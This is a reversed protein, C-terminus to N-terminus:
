VPHVTFTERAPSGFRCVEEPPVLLAAADPDRVLREIEAVDLVHRVSLDAGKPVVGLGRGTGYRAKFTSAATVVGGACETNFSDEM